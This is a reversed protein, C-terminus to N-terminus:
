INGLVYELIDAEDLKIEENTYNDKISVIGKSLTEDDLNINFKSNVKENLVVNINNMRLEQAIKLAHYSEEESVGIICVDINMDLANDRIINLVENILTEINIKINIENNTKCGVGVIVDEYIYNWTLKNSEIDNICYIELVELLNLVEANCSISLEIDDLGFRKFLNYGLSIVEVDSVLDDSNKKHIEINELNNTYYKNGDQKGIIFEYNYNDMHQNLIEILCNYLRAKKGGLIM